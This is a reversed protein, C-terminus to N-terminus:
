SVVIVYLSMSVKYLTYSFTGIYHVELRM